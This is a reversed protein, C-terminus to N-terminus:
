RRAQMARSCIWTSRIVKQSAINGGAQKSLQTLWPRPFLRLYDCPGTEKVLPFGQKLRILRRQPETPRSPISHVALRRQRRRRRIRARDKRIRHGGGP